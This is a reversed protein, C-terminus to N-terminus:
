REDEEFDGEDAEEETLEKLKKDYVSADLPLSDLVFHGLSLNQTLLLGFRGAEDRAKAVFLRGLGLGAEARTASFTVVCDSTGILSWDEAVHQVDVMSASVSARSAQQATVVAINREVATGRLDVFNQNLSNRKDKPDTRMIGVYDLILMDPVFGEVTALYDLYGELETPTLRGPAFRKILINDLRKGVWKLRSELEPRALEGRLSFDPSVEIRTFSNLRGDRDRKIEIAQSKADRTSVNFLGQIYRVAVQEESMELTVHLVKHKHSSLLAIKGLHILWWSKGMGSAGLMLMVNGRAPTIRAKDLQAIGTLFESHHKDLYGLVRDVETIRMGQSIPQHRIRLLEGLIEEVEELANEGHAHIRSSSDLLVSKMRQLRQFKHISTLLFDPNLGTQHLQLLDNLLQRYTVHKNDKRNSFVDSFIDDTHPGPAKKYKRWYSICGRAIDEYDSEFLEPELLNAVIGGHTNDYALLALLSEQLPKGLKEEM